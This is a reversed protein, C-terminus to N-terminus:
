ASRACAVVADDPVRGDPEPCERFHDGSGDMGWASITHKQCTIWGKGTEILEPVKSAALDDAKRTLLFVISGGGADASIRIKRLHLREHFKHRQAFYQLLDGRTSVQIGGVEDGVTYWTFSPDFFTTLQRQDGQNFADTFRM